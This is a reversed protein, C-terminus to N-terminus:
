SSSSQDSYSAFFPGPAVRGKMKHRVRYVITLRWDCQAKQSDKAEQEADVEDGVTKSNAEETPVGKHCREAGGPQIWAM